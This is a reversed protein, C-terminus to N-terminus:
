FSMEDASIAMICEQIPMGDENIAMTSEKVAM